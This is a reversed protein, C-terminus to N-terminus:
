GGLASETLTRGGVAVVVPSLVELYRHARGEEQSRPWGRHSVGPNWGSDRGRHIVWERCTWAWWSLTHGVRRLYCFGSSPQGADRRGDSGRLEWESDSGLVAESRDGHRGVQTELSGWCARRLTGRQCFGQMPAGM